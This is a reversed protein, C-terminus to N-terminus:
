FLDALEEKWRMWALWCGLVVVTLGWRWLVTHLVEYSVGWIEVAYAMSVLRVINATFVAVAGGVIGVVRDKIDVDRVAVVLATLALFSKWGTSDISVNVTLGSTQFFTGTHTAPVGLLNLIESAIGADLSRLWVPNWNLWILLYLPFVMATFRVLFVFVDWLKKNRGELSDEFEEKKQLLKKIM